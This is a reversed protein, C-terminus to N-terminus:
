AGLREIEKAAAECVEQATKSLDRLATVVDPESERLAKERAQREELIEHGSKEVTANSALTLFVNALEYADDPNGHAKVLRATAVLHVFNKYDIRLIQM